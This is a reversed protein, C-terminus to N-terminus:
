GTPDGDLDRCLETLVRRGRGGVRWYWWAFLFSCVGGALGAWINRFVLGGLIGLGIGMVIVSLPYGDAVQRMGAVRRARRLASSSSVRPDNGGAMLGGYLAFM